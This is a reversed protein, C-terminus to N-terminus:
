QADKQGSVIGIAHRWSDGAASSGEGSFRDDNKRIFEALQDRLRVVHERQLEILRLAAAEDRTLTLAQRFHPLCLGSSQRFVTILKADGLQSLLESLAQQGTSLEHHCVACERHPTLMAVLFKQRDRNSWRRRQANDITDAVDKMDMLINDLVARQLIAIGLPRGQRELMKWAHRNCYGRAAVFQLQVEMDNVGDSIIADVYRDSAQVSLRCIPCGDDRCAAILDAYLRSQIM